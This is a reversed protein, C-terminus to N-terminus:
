SRRQRRCMPIETLYRVTHPLDCGRRSLTKTRASGRLTRCTLGARCATGNQVARDVERRVPGAPAARLGKGGGSRPSKSTQGFAVVPLAIRQRWSRGLGRGGILGIAVDLGINYVGAAEAAGGAAISEASQIGFTEDRPLAAVVRAAGFGGGGPGAYCGAGRRFSSRHRAAVRPRCPPPPHRHAPPRRGSGPRSHLCLM